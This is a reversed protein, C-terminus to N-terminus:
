LKSKHRILADAVERARAPRKAPDKELCQMLIAELEERIDVGLSRPPEPNEHAIRYLVAQVEGTFPPRGVLCEYLVVGLSYLDSRGDLEGQTLQEPSLYSVTGVVSGTRTLRNDSTAM